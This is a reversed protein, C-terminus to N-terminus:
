VDVAASFRDLTKLHDYAQKYPNEGDINYPIAFYEEDFFKEAEKNQYTRLAFRLSAKSIITVLDVRFYANDVAFGYPTNHEQELAM